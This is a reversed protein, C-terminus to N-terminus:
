SLMPLIGMTMNLKLARAHKCVSVFVHACAYLMYDSLCNGETAWFTGIPDLLDAPERLAYAM